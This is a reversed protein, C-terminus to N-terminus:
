LVLLCFKVRRYHYKSGVGSPDTWYALALEFVNDLIIKTDILTVLDM